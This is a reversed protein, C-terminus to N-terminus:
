SKAKPAPPLRDRYQKSLIVGGGRLKEIVADGHFREIAASVTGAGMQLDTTIMAYTCPQRQEVIYNFIRTENRSYGFHLPIEAVEQVRESLGEQAGDQMKFLALRGRIFAERNRMWGFPGEAPLEVFSVDKDTMAAKEQWWPIVRENLDDGSTARPPVEGTLREWEADYAAGLSEVEKVVGASERVVKEGMLRRYADVAVVGGRRHLERITQRLGEESEGLKRSLGDVAEKGPCGALLRYVEADQLVDQAWLKLFAEGSRHHLMQLAVDRPVPVAWNDLAAEAFKAFLRGLDGKVDDPARVRSCVRAFEDDVIECPIVADLARLCEEIVEDARRMRDAPVPPQARACDLKEMYADAFRQFVRLNTPPKPKRSSTRTSM